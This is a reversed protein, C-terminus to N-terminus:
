GDEAVLVCISSGKLFQEGFYMVTDGVTHQAQAMGATEGGREAREMEAQCRVCYVPLRLMGLEKRTIRGKADTKLEYDYELAYKQGKPLL